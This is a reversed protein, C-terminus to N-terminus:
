TQCSSQSPWLTTEWIGSMWLHTVSFYVSAYLFSVLQRTHTIEATLKVTLCHFRVTEVEGSGGLMGENLAAQNNRDSESLCLYPCYNLWTDFCIHHWQLYFSYRNACIWVFRMFAPLQLLYSSAASGLDPWWICIKKWRIKKKEVLAENNIEDIQGLMEPEWGRMQTEM